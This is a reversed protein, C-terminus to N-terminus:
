LSLGLLISSRTDRNRSAKIRLKPTAMAIDTKKAAARSGGCGGRGPVTSVRATAPLSWSKLVGIRVVGSQPQGGGAKDCPRHPAASM